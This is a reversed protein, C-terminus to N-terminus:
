AEPLPFCYKLYFSMPVLNKEAMIKFLPRLIEFRKKYTKFDRFSKNPKNIYEELESRSMEIRKCVYDLFEESVELPVAYKQLAEERTMIGNRAAAALSWNRNDIDFKRPNYYSHLFETIRNELHHGGYYKWDYENELLKRAMEKSYKIYWLPRIKKIQKFLTWKIFRYFTMNPFTKSKVKGYKNHIDEIYKGDFYNNGM